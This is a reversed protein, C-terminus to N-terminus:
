YNHITDGSSGLYAGDRLLYAAIVLGFEAVPRSGLPTLTGILSM